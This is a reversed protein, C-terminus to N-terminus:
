KLVSARRLARWRCGGRSGRRCTSVMAECTEKQRQDVHLMYLNLVATAASLVSNALKLRFYLFRHYISVNILRDKIKLGFAYVTHSPRLVGGSFLFLQSCLKGPPFPLDACLLCCVCLGICRWLVRVGAGLCGLVWCVLPQLM